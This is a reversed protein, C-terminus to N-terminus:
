SATENIDWLSRQQIAPLRRHVGDPTIVPGFQVFHKVFSAINPGLYVFITGFGFDSTTGDPRYFTIFGDHFCLPYQWLPYFYHTFCSNGLLLLVAHEIYGKAYEHLLKEVFLKQYSRTSGQIPNVKGYPPNLWITKALWEKNLGNDDITYYQSAKVTKNAIDCSAPDLDISGMVSRAAKIYTHPTFWENNNNKRRPAEEIDFLKNSM